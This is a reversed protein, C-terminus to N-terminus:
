PTGFGVLRAGGADLGSWPGDVELVSWAGTPVGTRVRAVAADDSGPGALVAAAHSVTPEHGVVLVTTVEEPVERVLAVLEAAGADYLVDSVDVVDAAPAGAAALAGRVLEWTQRTRLSSSCLVRTPALGARALEGGVTTSQRRGLLALPREHDVAGGPTEAKAHRLIVLRHTTM